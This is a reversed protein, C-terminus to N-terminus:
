RLPLIMVDHLDGVGWARAEAVKTYGWSRYARRAPEAEQQVFLMVREAGVRELLCRHLRRAVGRGRWARRVAFEALAFTRKGDERSMEPPVAATVEDWWSNEPTVLYGFAMAVPEGADTRALVAAFGPQRTQKPFREFAEAADSDTENYPPEAFVEAYIRRFAPAEEIAAAGSMSKFAVAAPAEAVGEPETNM